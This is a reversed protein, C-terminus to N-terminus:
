KKKPLPQHPPMLAHAAPQQGPGPAKGAAKGPVNMPNMLAQAGPLSILQHTANPGFFTIEKATAVAGAPGGGVAAAEKTSAGRAVAGDASVASASASVEGGNASASANASAAGAAAAAAANAAAIQAMAARHAESPLQTEADRLRKVPRESADSGINITINYTVM